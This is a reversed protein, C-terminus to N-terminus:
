KLEIKELPNWLCKGSVHGAKEKEYPLNVIDEYEGGYYPGITSVMCPMIGIRDNEKLRSAIVDMDDLVVPVGMDYVALFFRVINRTNGFAKGSLEYYYGKPEEKHALLDDISLLSRGSRVFCHISWALSMSRTIEWPHGGGNRNDNIWKEFADSSDEPIDRMGEDRGDAYQLYMEKPTMTSASIYDELNSLYLKSCVDYYESTSIHEILTPEYGDKREDYIDLFRNIDYESLGDLMSERIEPFIDYYDKRLISGRRYKVPINNELYDNYTGEGLMQKVNILKDRLFSFLETFDIGYASPSSTDVSLIYKGEGIQISRWEKYEHISVKYWFIEDEYM